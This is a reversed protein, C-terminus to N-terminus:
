DCQASSSWMLKGSYKEEKGVINWLEEKKDNDFSYSM